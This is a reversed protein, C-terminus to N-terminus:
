NTKEAGPGDGRVSRGKHLDRVSRRQAGACRRDSRNRDDSLGSRVPMGGGQLSKREATDKAALVGELHGRRKTIGLHRGVLVRGERDYYIIVASFSRPQRQPRRRRRLTSVVLLPPWLM